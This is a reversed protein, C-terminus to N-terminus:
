AESDQARAEPDSKVEKGGFRVVLVFFGFVIMALHVFGYISGEEVKDSYFGTINFHIFALWFAVRYFDARSIM